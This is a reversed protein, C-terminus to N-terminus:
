FRMLSGPAVGASWYAFVRLVGGNFSLSINEEKLGFLGIFEEASEIPMREIAEHAYNEM